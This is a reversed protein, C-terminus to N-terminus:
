GDTEVKREDTGGTCQSQDSAYLTQFLIIVFVRFSPEMDDIVTRLQMSIQRIYRLQVFCGMFEVAVHDLM